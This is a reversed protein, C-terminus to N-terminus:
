WFCRRPPSSPARRWGRWRSPRAMGSATNPTPPPWRKMIAFLNLASTFLDMASDALSALIAVSDSAFYAFTKIVVLLLSVAVSAHAARRMFVGKERRKREGRNDPVDAMSM